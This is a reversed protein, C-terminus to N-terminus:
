LQGEKLAHKKKRVKKMEYFEAAVNRIGYELKKIQADFPSFGMSEWAEQLYMPLQWYFTREDSREYLAVIEWVYIDYEYTLDGPYVGIPDVKNFEDNINLFLVVRGPATALNEEEMDVLGEIQDDVRRAMEMYWNRRSCLRQKIIKEYQKKWFTSEKM